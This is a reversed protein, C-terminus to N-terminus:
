SGGAGSASFSLSGDASASFPGIEVTGACVDLPSMPSGAGVVDVPLDSHQGPLSLEFGAIALCGPGSTWEIGAFGSAGTSVTVVSASGAPVIRHVALQHSAGKSLASLTAVGGVLCPAASVDSVVVLARTRDAAQGADPPQVM